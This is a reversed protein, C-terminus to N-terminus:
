KDIKVFQEFIDLLQINAAQGRGKLVPSLIGLSVQDVKSADEQDEEDEPDVEQDGLEGLLLLRTYSRM